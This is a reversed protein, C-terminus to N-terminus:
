KLLQWFTKGSSHYISTQWALLCLHISHKMIKSVLKKGEQSGNSGIRTELMSHTQYGGIGNDWGRGSAIAAAENLAMQRPRTTANAAPLPPPHDMKGTRGKTGCRNSLFPSKGDNQFSLLIKAIMIRSKLFVLLSRSCQDFDNKPRRGLVAGTSPFGYIM